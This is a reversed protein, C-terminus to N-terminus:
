FSGWFVGIREYLLAIMFTTKIHWLAFFSSYVSRLLPGPLSFPPVSSVYPYSLPQPSQSSVSPYCHSILLIGLSHRFPASGVPPTFSFNGKIVTSGRLSRSVPQIPFYSLSDLHSLHIFCPIWPFCKRLTPSVIQRSPFQAVSAVNLSCQSFWAWDNGVDRFWWLPCLLRLVWYM